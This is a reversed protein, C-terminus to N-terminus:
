HVTEMKLIVQRKVEEEGYKAIAILISMMALREKDTFESAYEEAKEAGHRNNINSTMVARNYARLMPNQVDNFTTFKTM